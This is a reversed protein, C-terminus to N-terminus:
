WCAWNTVVMITDIWLPNLRSLVLRHSKTLRESTGAKKTELLSSSLTWCPKSAATRVCFTSCSLYHCSRNWGSHRARRTVKEWYQRVPHKIMLKMNEVKETENHL